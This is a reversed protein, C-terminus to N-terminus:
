KVVIVTSGSIGDVTASITAVGQGKAKVIGNSNVTAVTNNSSHYQVKKNTLNVFSGDNNVAEIINDAIAHPEEMNPNIDSEIWKNKGNMSITDGVHYVLQEPQITVHLVKPTLVGQINVAASDAIDSSNYGVRFQYTGNYVVSKLKDENWFALNAAKVNLTIHQTEGPKLDKTKQFGELREIPLEKGKVMPSSVYLQAVTAGTISGTNTVDFNVDVNDNPSIQKNPM